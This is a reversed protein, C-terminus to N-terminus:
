PYNVLYEKIKQEVQERVTEADFLKGITIVGDYKSFTYESYKEVGVLSEVLIKLTDNKVPFNANLQINSCIGDEYESTRIDLQFKHEGVEIVKFIKNESKRPPEGSFRDRKKSEIFLKKMEEFPMRVITAMAKGYVWIITGDKENEEISCISFDDILVKADTAWITTEIVM